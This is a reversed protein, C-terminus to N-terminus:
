LIQIKRIGQEVELNLLGLGSYKHSGYRLQNPLHSNFGKSAIVAPYLAAHLKQLQKSTLFTAALPYTIQPIISCNNYVYSYYHSM